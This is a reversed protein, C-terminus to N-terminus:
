CLVFDELPNNGEQMDEMARGKMSGYVFSEGIIQYNANRPRLILPVHCDLLICVPDGVCSDAPVLALHGRRTVALRRFATTREVASAIFILTRADDPGFGDEPTSPMYKEKMHNVLMEITHGGIDFDKIRDYWDRIYDRNPLKSMEPFYFLAWFLRAWEKPAKEGGINSKDMVCTRFLAEQVDGIDEYVVLGHKPQVMELFAESAPDSTFLKAEPRPLNRSVGDVVDFKFGKATLYELDASFSFAHSNAPYANGAAAFSDLDGYYSSIEPPELQWQLLACAKPGFYSWDPVWHPLDTRARPRGAFCLFDLAGDRKRTAMLRAVSKYVEAVSQLYWEGDDLLGEEQALSALAVFKDRLDTAEANRHQSLLVLIPYRGGCRLIVRVADIGGVRYLGPMGRIGGSTQQVLINSVETTHALLFDVARVVQQWVTSRGGCFVVAEKALAVEQIVWIRHWWMRAFLKALAVLEGEVQWSYPSGWITADYRPGQKEFDGGAQELCEIQCDALVDILDIARESEDAEEGLWVWVGTSQEYIRQMLQVQQSRELLDDQNICVADAWVRVDQQPDRFRRLASELSETAAFRTGDVTIERTNKSKGWAYSLAIYQPQEDLSVHELRCQVPESASAASSAIITLLRVEHRQRNLPQYHM